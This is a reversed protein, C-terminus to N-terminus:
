ESFAHTGDADLTTTPPADLSLASANLSCSLAAGDFRLRKLAPLNIPCLLRLTQYTTCRIESSNFFNKNRTTQVPHRTTVWYFLYYPEARLLPTLGTSRRVDFCNRRYLGVQCRYLSSPESTTAIAQVIPYVSTNVRMPPRCRRRNVNIVAKRVLFVRPLTPL